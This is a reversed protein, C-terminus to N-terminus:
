KAGGVRDKFEAPVCEDLWARVDAKHYRVYRDFIRPTPGRGTKRWDRLTRTCVGLFGALQPVSMFTPLDNLDQM